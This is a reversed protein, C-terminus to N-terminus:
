RPRESSEVVQGSMKNVLYSGHVDVNPIKSIIRFRWDDKLEEPERSLSVSGSKNFASQKYQFYYEAIAVAEQQNIGDHRDVKLYANNVLESKSACGAVLLFIWLYLINRMLLGYNDFFNDFIKSVIRNCQRKYRGIPGHQSDPRLIANM